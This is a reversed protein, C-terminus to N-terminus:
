KKSPIPNKIAAFRESSNWKNATRLLHMNRDNDGGRLVPVVHEKEAREWVTGLAIIPNGSRQMDPYQTAFVVLDEIKAPQYGNEQIDDLIEGTTKNDPYSFLVLERRQNGEGHVPFHDSNIGSNMYDFQADEIMSELTKTYDVTIPYNEKPM